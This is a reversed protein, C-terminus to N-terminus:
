PSQRSQETETPTGVGRPGRGNRKMYEALEEAAWRIRRTVDREGLLYPPALTRLKEDTEAPLNIQPMDNCIYLVM